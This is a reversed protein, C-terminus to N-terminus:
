STIALLTILEAQTSVLASSSGQPVCGGFHM